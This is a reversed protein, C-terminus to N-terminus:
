APAADLIAQTEPSKSDLIRLPNTELRRQSDADLQMEIALCISWWRMSRYRARDSASGISNIELTLADDVGLRRWLQRSFRL